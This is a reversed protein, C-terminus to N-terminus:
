FTERNWGFIKGDINCFEIYVRDAAIGCEAELFDCIAKTDASCREKPLGISKLEVFACPETDGAFMMPTAQHLALMMYNEPKGLMAAVFGSLKKLLDKRAEDNLERNTELKFYPM